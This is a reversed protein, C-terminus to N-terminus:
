EKIQLPSLLPKETRCWSIIYFHVKALPPENGSMRLSTLFPTRIGKDGEEICSELV